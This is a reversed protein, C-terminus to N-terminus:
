VTLITGEYFVVSGTKQLDTGYRASSPLDTNYLQWFLVANSLM